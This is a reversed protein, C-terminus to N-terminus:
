KKYLIKKLDNYCKDQWKAALRICKKEHPHFDDIYDFSKGKKCMVNYLKFFERVSLLYHKYEHIITNCLEKYGRHPKLFINITNKEYNYVGYASTFSDSLGSKYKYVRLKPYYHKYKSRGWKRICWNLIEEVKKRDTKLM